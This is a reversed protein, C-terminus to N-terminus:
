PLLCPDHCDFQSDSIFTKILDSFGAEVIYIFRFQEVIQCPLRNILDRQEGSGAPETFRKIHTHHLTEEIDIAVAPTYKLPKINRLM